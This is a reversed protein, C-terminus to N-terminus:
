RIELLSSLQKFRARRLEAPKKKALVQREMEAKSQQLELIREDVSDETVLRLVKVPRTQGIRHVRDYAQQEMSQNFYPDALYVINARTLTLGVGGAKLSILLVEPGGEEQMFTNVVHKRRKANMRGDYHMYTIGAKQFEAGLVDLFKTFNSFVLSRCESAENKTKLISSVLAAVKVPLKGGLLDNYDEVAEETDIVGEVSDHESPNFAKQQVQSADVVDTRRFEGRCLPCHAEGRKVLREVCSLCFCHKCTRLIQLKEPVEMCICCEFGENTDGTDLVKKLADFLEERKEATLEQKGASKTAVHNLIKRARELREESIIRPDLCCQRLRTILELMLLYNRMVSEEGGALFAQQFVVGSSQLLMEYLERQKGEMKLKVVDVTIKPLKITTSKLRRLCYSHILIRLHSLATEDGEQVPRGICRKYLNYNEVPAVRLFALLGHLDDMSNVFPTGTLAWRNCADLNLAAKHVATKRNRIQHGEDLVVRWWSVGFISMKRGRKKGGKDFEKWETTLIGFTTLVVDFLKLVNPDKMRNSGYFHCVSLVGDKVHMVFQAAWNSLVSAPAVILTGRPKNDSPTGSIKAHEQLRRQSAQAIVVDRACALMEKKTGSQKADAKKLIDKLQPNTMSDLEGLARATADEDSEEATTSPVVSKVGPRPNNVVLAIIQLTKGLGMEDALIGGRVSCPPLEQGAHTIMSVYVERGTEQEQEKQWLVPLANSRERQTMWSVGSRQFPYLCSELVHERDAEVLDQQEEKEKEEMEFLKDLQEQSQFARQRTSTEIVVYMSSSTTSELPREVHVSGTRESQMRGRLSSRDVKFETAHVGALWEWVLPAVVPICSFRFEIAVEYINFARRPVTAELQIRWQSTEDMIPRLLAAQQRKIHGVQVGAINDVRIANWDYPNCPERVLVVYEGARVVGSYYRMGVITGSAKGCFEENQERFKKQTSIEDEDGDLSVHGASKQLVFFEEARSYAERLLDQGKYHKAGDRIAKSLTELKAAFEVDTLTSQQPQSSSSSSAALLSISGSTGSGTRPM